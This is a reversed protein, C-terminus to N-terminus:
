SEQKYSFYEPSELAMKFLMEKLVSKVSFKIESIKTYFLVRPFMQSDVFSSYSKYSVSKNFEGCNKFIVFNISCCSNEEVEAHFACSM